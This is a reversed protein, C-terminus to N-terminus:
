AKLDFKMSYGCIALHVRSDKGESYALAGLGSSSNVNSGAGGFRELEVEAQTLVPACTL